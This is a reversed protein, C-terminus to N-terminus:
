AVIFVEVTGRTESLCGPFDVVNRYLVAPRHASARQARAKHPTTGEINVKM